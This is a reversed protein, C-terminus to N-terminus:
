SNQAKWFQATVVQNANSVTFSVLLLFSYFFSADLNVVKGYRLTSILFFQDKKISALTIVAQNTDKYFVSKQGQSVKSQPLYAELIFAVHEPM